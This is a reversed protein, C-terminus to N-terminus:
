PTTPPQNFVFKGCGSGPLEDPTLTSCLQGNKGFEKSDALKAIINENETNIMDPTIHTGDLNTENETKIKDPTIDTEALNNENEYTNYKLQSSSTVNQKVNSTNNLSNCLQNVDIVEDNCENTDTCCTNDFQPVSYVKATADYCNGGYEAHIGTHKSNDFVVWEEEANYCKKDNYFHENTNFLYYLLFVLIIFMILLTNM